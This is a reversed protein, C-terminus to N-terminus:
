GQVPVASQVLGHYVTWDPLESFHTLHLAYNAVLWLIFTVGVLAVAVIVAGIITCLVVRRAVSRWSM